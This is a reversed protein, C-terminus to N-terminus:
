KKTSEKEDLDQLYVEKDKNERGFYVLYKPFSFNRVM